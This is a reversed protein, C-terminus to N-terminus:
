VDFRVPSESNEQPKRDVIPKRLVLWASGRGSLANLVTAKEGLGRQLAAPKSLVSGVRIFEFAEPNAAGQLFLMCDFVVRRTM